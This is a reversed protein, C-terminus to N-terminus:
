GIIYQMRYRYTYAELGNERFIVLMDDVWDDIFLFKARFHIGYHPTNIVAKNSYFLLSATGFKSTSTTVPTDDYGYYGFVYDTNTCATQTTVPSGAAGTM